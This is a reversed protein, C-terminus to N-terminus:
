YEGIWFSFIFWQFFFIPCVVKEGSTIETSTSILGHVFNLICLHLLVQTNWNVHLKQLKQKLYISLSKWWYLTANIFKIINFVQIEFIYKWFKSFFFFTTNQIYLILNVAENQKKCNAHSNSDNWKNILSMEIFLSQKTM